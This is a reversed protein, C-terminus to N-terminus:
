GPRELACIFPVPPPPGVAEGLRRSIAPAALALLALLAVLPVFFSVQGGGPATSAPAPVPLPSPPTSPHRPSSSSAAATGSRPAATPPTSLFHVLGPLPPGYAGSAALVGGVMGEWVDIGVWDLAPFRRQTFSAEFPADPNATGLVAPTPASPSPLLGLPAGAGLTSADLALATHAAAALAGGLAKSAEAEVAALEGAGPMRKTFDLAQSTFDSVESTVRSVAEEVGGAGSDTAAPIFAAAAAASGKVTEVVRTAAPLDSGAGAALGSVVGGTVQKLPASVSPPSGSGSDPQRVVHASASPPSSSSPAVKALTQASTAQAQASVQSVVPAQPPAPPPAPAPAPAPSVTTPTPAPAEAASPVTGGAAAAVTAEASGTAEELSAARASSALVLACLAAILALLGLGRLWTTPRTAIDPNSNM